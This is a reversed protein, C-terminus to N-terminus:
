EMDKARAVLDAELFRGENFMKRHKRCLTIEVGGLWFVAVVDSM